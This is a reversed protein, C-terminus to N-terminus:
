DVGSGSKEMRRYSRARRSAQTQTDEFRNGVGRDRCWFRVLPMAFIQRGREAHELPKYAQTRDPKGATPYRRRPRNTTRHGRRCSPEELSLLLDSLPAPLRLLPVSASLKLDRRVTRHLPHTSSVYASLIIVTPLLHAILGGALSCADGFLWTVVFLVSLGQGSQM